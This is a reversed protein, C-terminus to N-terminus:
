LSYEKLSCFPKTFAQTHGASFKYNAVHISDEWVPGTDQPGMPARGQGATFQLWPVDQAVFPLWLGPALCWASAQICVLFITGGWVCVHAYVCVCVCVYVCVCM